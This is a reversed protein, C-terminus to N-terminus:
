TYAKLAPSNHERSICSLLLLYNFLDVPDATREDFHVGWTSCMHWSSGFWAFILCTVAHCYLLLRSYAADGTM